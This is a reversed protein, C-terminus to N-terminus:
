RAAVDDPTVVRNGFGQRRETLIGLFIFTTLVFTTSKLLESVLTLVIVGAISGLGHGFAFSGTILLGVVTTIIGWLFYTLFILGKNGRTLESSRTFSEVIGRNEAVAAPVVLSFMLIVVIWPLILLLLVFIALPGFILLSAGFVAAPVGYVILAHLMYVLLVKPMKSLGWRLCDAAKATGTRQVEIVAYVLAGSMLSSSLLVACWYLLTGGGGLAFGGGGSGITRAAAEGSMGMGTLSAAGYELVVLPLTAALVILGIAPFHKRYVELTPGIVDGAGQFRPSPIDTPLAGARTEEGYAYSPGCADWAGSADGGAGSADGSAASADGATGSAGTEAGFPDNLRADCMACVAADMRNIHGCIICKPNSMLTM